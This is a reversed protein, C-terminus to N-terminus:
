PRVATPGPRPCDTAPTGKCAGSLSGERPGVRLAGRRAASRSVADPDGRPRPGYSRGCPDERMARAADWVRAELDHGAVVRAGNPPRPDLWAVPSDRSSTGAGYGPLDTAIAAALAPPSKLTEQAAQEYVRDAEPDRGQRRFAFARSVVDVAETSGAQLLRETSAPSPAARTATAAVALLAASTAISPPRPWPGGGRRPM